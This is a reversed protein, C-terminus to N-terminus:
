GLLADLEQDIVDQVTRPQTTQTPAAGAAPSGQPLGPKKKPTPPAPAIKKKLKDTKALTEAESEYHAEAMALADAVPLIYPPTEDDGEAASLVLEKVLELGERGHAVVYEFDGGKAAKITQEAADFFKQVSAAETAEKERKEFLALRDALTKVEKALPDAFDPEDKVRKEYARVIDLVDLKAAELAKLPDGGAAEIAAAMRIADASPATPAPKTAALRAEAQALKKRARAIALAHESATVKPPEPQQTEAPQEGEVEQEPETTTEPQEGEPAAPETTAPAPTSGAPDASAGNSTPAPPQAVAASGPPKEKEAFLADIADHITTQTTPTTQETPTPTTM